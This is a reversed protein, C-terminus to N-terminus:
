DEFIIRVRIHADSGMGMGRQSIFNLRFGGPFQVRTFETKIKKLPQNDNVFSKPQTWNM